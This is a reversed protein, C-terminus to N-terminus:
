LNLGVFDTEAICKQTLDVTQYLTVFGTYDTEAVPSQSLYVTQYFMVFGVYDTKLLVPDLESWRDSLVDCVGVYDTKAICYQNLGVTQYFTM